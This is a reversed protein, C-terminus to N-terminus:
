WNNLYAPFQNYNELFIVNIFYSNITYNKEICFELWNLM